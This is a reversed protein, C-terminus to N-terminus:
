PEQIDPWGSWGKFYESFFSFSLSYGKIQFDIGFLSTPTLFYFLIMLGRYPSPNDDGFLVSLLSINGVIGIQLTKNVSGEEFTKTDYQYPKLNPLSM